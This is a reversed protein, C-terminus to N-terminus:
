IALSKLYFSLFNQTHFHAQPLYPSFNTANVGIFIILDFCLHPSNLSGELRTYDDGLQVYPASAIHTMVGAGAYWLHNESGRWHCPRVM